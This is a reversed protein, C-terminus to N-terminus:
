HSSGGDVQRVHMSGVVDVTDDKAAAEDDIEDDDANKADISAECSVRLEVISKVASSSATTPAGNSASTCECLKDGSHRM